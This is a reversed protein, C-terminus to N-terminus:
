QVSVVDMEIFQGNYASPAPAVGNVVIPNGSADKNMLEAGDIGQATLTVAAGGTITLAQTYDLPFCHSIGNTGANLFYTQPPSAIQLKYLNQPGSSPTGGQVWNGVTTGGTYEKLEVVGRFRLTVTYNTGPVGGLKKTVAAPDSTTCSVGDPLNSQCPMDWRLKDLEPGPPPYVVVPKLAVNLSGSVNGAGHKWKLDIVVVDTGCGPDANVDCSLEASATGDAALTVTTGGSLSGVSSTVSVDGKGPKGFEDTAALDIRAKTGDVLLKAPTATATIEAPGTPTPGCGLLAVVLVAGAMLQRTVM